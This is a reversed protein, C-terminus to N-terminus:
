RAPRNGGGDDARASSADGREGPLRRALWFGAGIAAAVVGAVGLRRRVLALAPPALTMLASTRVARSVDRRARRMTSRAWALCGGAVVLAAAAVVLAAVAPSLREALAIQAAFGILVAATVSAAAALGLAAAAGAGRRQLAPADVGLFRLLASM